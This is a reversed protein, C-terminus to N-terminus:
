GSANGRNQNSGHHIWIEESDLNRSWNIVSSIWINKPGRSCWRTRVSKLKSLMAKPILQCNDDGEDVKDFNSAEHTTVHNENKVGMRQWVTAGTNLCNDKHQNQIETCRDKTMGWNTKTSSWMILTLNRRTCWPKSSRSSHRWNSSPMTSSGGATSTRRWCVATPTRRWALRKRWSLGRSHWRTKVRRSPSTRTPVMLTRSCCPCCPKSSWSFITTGITRKTSTERRTRRSTTRARWEWNEAIRDCLHQHIQRQISESDRHMSREVNRLEYEHKNVNGIGSITKYMLAEIFPLQSESQYVFSNDLDYPSSVGPGAM